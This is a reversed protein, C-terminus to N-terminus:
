LGLVKKAMRYGAQILQEISKLSFDYGKAFPVHDSHERVIRTIALPAAAGMLQIFRPQHQIRNAEEAPLARVIEEVLSQYDRVTESMKWDSHIREAYVIEDRRGIVDAINQPLLRRKGPFLDIVFVRKGASGCRALVDELPSNSVIGADWYNKQGISTWAFAPPLSGSAMVHEPTIDDIYSDFMTLTGTQVDVAQILLRIPSAKLQSFDVYKLLLDKVPTMDYFSIWRCPIRNPMSMSTLWRPKFFKPVGFLMAHQSAFFRRLNEEPLEPLAVALEHWFAKLAAAADHPHSAIIAGNFAGISIGAVIDPRIGAAQLASIAGCEFAGFAGGGQLIFITQNPIQNLRFDLNSLDPKLAHLNVCHKILTETVKIEDTPRGLAFMGRPIDNKLFFSAYSGNTLSGREIKEAHQNVVGLLTFSQDFVHSYFYSVEHYPLHHGLMNHAAVRGQKVANDWHEIRRRCNFVEDDFNAVDGAAFVHPNNTCLFRDVRVGNDLKLGSHKLFNLDPEVGAGIVVLDCLLTKGTTTMVSEVTTRGQFSVPTDGVLVQVGKAQLHQQFYKSIEPTSLKELVSDLEILTVGLGKQRLSAAVELGMLSGGIVVAQRAHQMSRWIAQADSLTRLHHVGQLREGAIALRMPKVGTAILLKKYHILEHTLTRLTHQLPQVSTVLTNLRVDISLEQYRSAPLILIPAPVENSLLLKKSLPPRQYPLHAEQTLLLIRGQAGENRLTEAATVSALGGGVIVFEFHNAV